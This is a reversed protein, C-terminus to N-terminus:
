IARLRAEIQSCFHFGTLTPLGTHIRNAGRLVTVKCDAVGFEPTFRGRAVGAAVALADSMADADIGLVSAASCTSGSVPERARLRVGTSLLVAVIFHGHLLPM